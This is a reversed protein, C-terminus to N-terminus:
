LTFTNMSQRENAKERDGEIEEGRQNLPKGLDGYCFNRKGALFFVLNILTDAVGAVRRMEEGNGKWQVFVIEGRM